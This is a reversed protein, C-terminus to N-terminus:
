LFTIQSEDQNFSEMNKYLDKKLAKLNHCLKIKQM